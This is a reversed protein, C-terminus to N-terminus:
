LSQFWLTGFLMEFILISMAAYCTIILCITILM